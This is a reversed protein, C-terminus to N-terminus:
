NQRFQKIAATLAAEIDGDKEYGAQGMKFVKGIDMINIQVGHGLKYYVREIEKDLAKGKLKKPPKNAPTKIAGPSKHTGDEAADLLTELEEFGESVKGISVVKGFVEREAPPKPAAVKAESKPRKMSLFWGTQSEFTPVLQDNYIGEYKKVSKAGNFFEMDYTDDPRLTIRVGNGRSREKNPWSFSLGKEILHINKAGLMMRLKGPGGMQQAITKGIADNDEGEHLGPLKSEIGALKRIRSM